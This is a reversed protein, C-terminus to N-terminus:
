PAFFDKRRKTKGKNGNIINDYRWQPPEGSWMVCVAQLISFRSVKIKLTIWARQDRDFASVRDSEKLESSEMVKGILWHSLMFSQPGRGLGLRIGWAWVLGFVSKVPKHRVIGLSCLVRSKTFRIQSLRNTHRPMPASRVGTPTAAYSRPKLTLVTCLIFFDNAWWKACAGVCVSIEGNMGCSGVNLTEWVSASTFSCDDGQCHPKWEPQVFSRWRMFATLGGHCFVCRPYFWMVNCIYVTDLLAATQNQKLHNMKHWTWLWRNM